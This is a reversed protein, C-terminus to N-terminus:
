SIYRVLGYSAYEESPDPFTCQFGEQFAKVKFLHNVMRAAMLFMRSEHTYTLIDVCVHTQFSNIGIRM